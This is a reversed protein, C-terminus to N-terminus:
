TMDDDAMDNTLMVSIISNNITNIHLHIFISIHLHGIRDGKLKRSFFYIVM